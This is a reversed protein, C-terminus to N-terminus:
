KKKLKVEVDKTKGTKDTIKMKVKKSDAAELGMQDLYKGIDKVDVGEQWKGLENPAMQRPAAAAGTRLPRM